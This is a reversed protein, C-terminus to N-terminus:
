FILGPQKLSGQILIIPIKDKELLSFNKLFYDLMEQHKQRIM